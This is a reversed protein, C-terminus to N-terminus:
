REARRGRRRPPTGIRDVRFRRLDGATDCWADVYWHGDSAFVRLPAIERDTVRDTSASYYSIALADGYALAERVEPLLAPADLEM